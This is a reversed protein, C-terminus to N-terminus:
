AKISEEVSNVAAAIAKMREEVMGVSIYVSFFMCLYRTHTSIDWANRMKKENAEELFVCGCRSFFVFIKTKKNCSVSFITRRAACQKHM